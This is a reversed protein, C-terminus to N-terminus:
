QRAMVWYGTQDYLLVTDHSPHYNNTVPPYSTNYLQYTAPYPNLVNLNLVCLGAVTAFDNMSGITDTVINNSNDKHQVFGALSKRFILQMYQQQSNITAWIPNCSNDYKNIALWTTVVKSSDLFSVRFQGTNYAPMTFSHAKGGITTFSINTTGWNTATYDSSYIDYYYTTNSDPRIALMSLSDYGNVLGSFFINTDNDYDSLSKYIDVHLPLSYPNFLKYSTDALPQIQKVCSTLWLASIIVLLVILSRYM